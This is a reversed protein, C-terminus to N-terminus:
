KARFEAATIALHNKTLEKQVTTITGREIIMNALEGDKSAVLSASM